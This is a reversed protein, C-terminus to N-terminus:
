VKEIIIKNKINELEDLSIYGTEENMANSIGCAMSSRICEEIDYSNIIGYAFGAVSSDGSGVPNLLNISPISVKYTNEGIFIAGKAGLSILINQAGQSQLVKAADIIDADSKLPKNILSALEEKNPKILFPSATIAEKLSTGSTDLIVPVKKKNAKHILTAYFDKPIGLPLSGSICVLSSKGLLTKYRDLFIELEEESVDTGNGLIETQTEPTIIALCERTNSNISTFHDELKYNKLQEKIWLGNDGGLVGSAMVSSGLQCLVRSVNLGKGGPTKLPQNTRSISNVEFSDMRYHIDIAPNMTITLIM